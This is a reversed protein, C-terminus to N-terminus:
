AAWSAVPNQDTDLQYSILNYKVCNGGRKGATVAEFKFAPSQDGNKRWVYFVDGCYHWRRTASFVWSRGKDTTNLTKLLAELDQFSYTKTSDLHSAALSLYNMFIDRTILLYYEQGVLYM